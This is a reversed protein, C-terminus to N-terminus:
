EAFWLTLTSNDSNSECTQWGIQGSAIHSQVLALTNSDNPQGSIVSVIHKAQGNFYVTDGVGLSAIHTHLPSNLEVLYRGPLESWAFMTNTAPVHGTGSFSGIAASYGNVYFGTAPVTESQTTAAAQATQTTQAASSSNAAPASQSSSSAPQQVSESASSAAVPTTSSAASTTTVPTSSSVAKKAAPKKSSSTAAAKVPKKTQVSETKVDAQTTRSPQAVFIGGMLMSGLLIGTIGGIIRKNGKLNIKRM